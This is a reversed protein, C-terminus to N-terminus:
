AGIPAETKLAYMAQQKQGNPPHQWRDGRVEFVHEPRIVRADPWIRSAVSLKNGPKVNLVVTLGDTVGLNALVKQLESM